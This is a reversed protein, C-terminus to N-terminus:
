LYEAWRLAFLTAYSESEGHFRFHLEGQMHAWDYDQERLLGQQKCWMSLEIGLRTTVSTHGKPRLCIMIM